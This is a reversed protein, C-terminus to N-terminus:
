GAGQTRLWAWTLSPPWASARGEVDVGQCPHQPWSQTGKRSVVDQSLQPGRRGERSEPAAGRPGRTVCTGGVDWTLPGGPLLPLCTHLATHERPSVWAPPRDPAVAEGPLCPPPMERSPEGGRSHSRHLTQQAELPEPVDVPHPTLLSWPSPMDPVHHTITSLKCSTPPRLALPVPTREM